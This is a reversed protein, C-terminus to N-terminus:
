RSLKLTPGNQAGKPPVADPLGDDRRVEVTEGHADAVTDTHREDKTDCHELTDGVPHRVNDTDSHELADIVAVTRADAGRM